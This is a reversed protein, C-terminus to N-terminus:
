IIKKLYDLELILDDIHGLREVKEELLEQVYM